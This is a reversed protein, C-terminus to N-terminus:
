TLTLWRPRAPPTHLVTRYAVHRQRDPCWTERNAIWRTLSDDLPDLSTCTTLAPRLGAIWTDFDPDLAALTAARHADLRSRPADGLHVVLLDATDTM